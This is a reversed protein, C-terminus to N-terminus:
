KQSAAYASLALLDPKGSSLRPIEEIFCVVKPAAVRGLVAVIEDYIQASLEADEEVGPV